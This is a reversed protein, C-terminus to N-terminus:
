EVAEKRPTYYAGGSNMNFGTQYCELIEDNGHILHHAYFLGKLRENLRFFDEMDRNKFAADTLAKVAFIERDLEKKMDKMKMRKM